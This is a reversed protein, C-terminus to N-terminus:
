IQCSTTFVSTTNDLANVETVTCSTYSPQIPEITTSLMTTSYSTTAEIGTPVDTCAATGSSTAVVTSGGQVITTTWAYPGCSESYQTQNYVIVYVSATFIYTTAHSDGSNCQVPVTEVVDECSTVTTLYVSTVTQSTSPLVTLLADLEILNGDPWANPPWFMNVYVRLRYSGASLDGTPTNCLVPQSFSISVNWYHSQGSGVAFGPVSSQVDYETGIAYNSCAISGSWYDIEYWPPIGFFVQTRNSVNTLNYLLFASQGQDSICESELTIALSWTENGITSITGNSWTRVPCSRPVSNINETSIGGSIDPSLTLIPV